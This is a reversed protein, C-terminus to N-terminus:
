SEGQGRSHAAHHSSAPQLKSDTNLTAADMGTNAYLSIGKRTCPPTQSQDTHKGSDTNPGVVFTYM